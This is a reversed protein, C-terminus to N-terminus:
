VNSVQLDGTARQKEKKTKQYKSCHKQRRYKIQCYLKGQIQKPFRDKRNCKRNRVRQFLILSNTFLYNYIYFYKGILIKEGLM